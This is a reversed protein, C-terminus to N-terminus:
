IVISVNVSCFHEKCKTWEMLMCSPPLINPVSKLIICGLVGGGGALVEITFM